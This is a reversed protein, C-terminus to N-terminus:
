RQFWGLLCEDGGGGQPAPHLFSCTQALKLIVMIGEVQLPTGLESPDIFSGPSGLAASTALDPPASKIERYTPAAPAGPSHSPPPPPHVNETGPDPEAFEPPVRCPASAVISGGSLDRSTRGGRESRAHKLYLRTPSDGSLQDGSFM